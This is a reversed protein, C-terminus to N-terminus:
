KRGLLKSFFGRKVYTREIIGGVRYGLSEIKLVLDERDINEDSVVTCEGTKHSSSVSKVKFNRRVTDNLHAECMGCMMGDVNIILEIM